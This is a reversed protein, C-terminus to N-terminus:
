AKEQCNVVEEFIRTLQNAIVQPAFRRKCEKAIADTDYMSYHNYMDIMAKSLSEVNDVPILLGNDENIFEEPGGCITAIVPLGQSMAEICAVGFTESRSSLVFAHCESMLNIIGQKSKRGALIVSETLGLEHIQNELYSKEVGAGVIIVQCGKRALDSKAFASILVDYGKIEKLSGVAIFKFGKETTKQKLSPSIFEPGLMDYVITSDIGLHSKIQSKLSESVALLKDAHNYAIRCFSVLNPSLTKQALASWHEIGVLPVAYKKKLFAAYAINYLYHAYIIDPCGHDRIYKRYVLDLLHTSVWYQIRSGLLWRIWRTPMVFIGYADMNNEKIHSFGIRRWYTRFRKDVYLVSVQHGQESLALAQDREFCGWQPDRKDPYGNAILIIKM